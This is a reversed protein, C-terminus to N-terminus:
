RCAAEHVRIARDVEVQTQATDARSSTPLSAAWSECLAETVAAGSTKTNQCGAVFFLILAVAFPMLRPM